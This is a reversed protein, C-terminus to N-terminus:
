TVTQDWEKVEHKCPIYQYIRTGHEKTFDYFVTCEEYELHRKTEYDCYGGGYHFVSQIVVYSESNPNNNDCLGFGGTINFAIFHILIISPIAAMLIFIGEVIKWGLDKTM